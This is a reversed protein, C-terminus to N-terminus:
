KLKAWEITNPDDYIWEIRKKQIWQNWFDHILPIPSTDISVNNNRFIKRTLFIVKDLSGMWKSYRLLFTSLGNFHITIGKGFPFKLNQTTAWMKDHFAYPMKERVSVCEKWRRIVHSIKKNEFAIWKQALFFLKLPM